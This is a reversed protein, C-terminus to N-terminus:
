LDERAALVERRLGCREVAGIFVDEVVEYGGDRLVFGVMQQLSASDDVTMVTKV